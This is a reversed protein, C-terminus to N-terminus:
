NKLKKEVAEIRANIEKMEKLVADQAEELKGEEVLADAEVEQEARLSRLEKLNKTEM